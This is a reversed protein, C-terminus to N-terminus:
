IRQCHSCHLLIPPNPPVKLSPSAVKDKVKDKQSTKNDADDDSIEIIAQKMGRWKIFHKHDCQAVACEIVDEPKCNPYFFATHYYV